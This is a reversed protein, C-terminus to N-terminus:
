MGPPSVVWLGVAKEEGVNEIITPNDFIFYAADEKELLYQKNKATVRVKGRIIYIFDEHHSPFLPVDIKDAGVEIEFFLPQMKINKTGMFALGELKIYESESGFSKRNEKKLVVWEDLLQDDVLISINVDLYNAITKLTSFSPSVKDQELQYIFSATVGVQEAFQRVTLKSNLRLQKIRQGISM